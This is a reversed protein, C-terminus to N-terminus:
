NLWRIKERTAPGIPIAPTLILKLNEGGVLELNSGELRLHTLQSLLEAFAAEKAQLHPAPLMQTTTLPAVM